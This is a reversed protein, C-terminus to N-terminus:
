KTIYDRIISNRMRLNEYVVFIVTKSLRVSEMSYSYFINGSHLMLCYKISSNENNLIYRALEHSFLKPKLNSLLTPLVLLPLVIRRILRMFLFEILDVIM